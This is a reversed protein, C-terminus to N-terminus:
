ANAGEVSRKQINMFLEEFPSNLLEVQFAFFVGTCFIQDHNKHNWHNPSNKFKGIVFISLDYIKGM